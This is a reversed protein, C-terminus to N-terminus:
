PHRYMFSAAAALADLSHLGRQWSVQTGVPMDLLADWLKKKYFRKHFRYIEADAAPAPLLTSVRRPPPTTRAEEAAAPASQAVSLSACSPRRQGQGQAVASAPPRKRPPLRCVVAPVVLGPTAGDATTAELYGDGTKGMVHVQLTVLV